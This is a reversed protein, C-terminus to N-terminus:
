TNGVLDEILAFFGDADAKTVWTHPGDELASVRTQGFHTGAETDVSVTAKRAEFLHPALLYAITAPDHMPTM